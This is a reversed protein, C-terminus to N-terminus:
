LEPQGACSHYGLTLVGDFLRAKVWKSDIPWILRSTFWPRSFRFFSM